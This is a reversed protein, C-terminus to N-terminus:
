LLLLPFYSSLIQINQVAGLIIGLGSIIGLNVGFHDGVLKQFPITNQWLIIVLRNSRKRERFANLM